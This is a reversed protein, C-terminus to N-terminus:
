ISNEQLKKAQKARAAQNRRMTALRKKATEANRLRRRVEASIEAEIDEATEARRDAAQMGLAWFTAAKLAEILTVIAWLAWSPLSNTEARATEAESKVRLDSIRTRLPAIQAQYASSCAAQYQPGPRTLDCRPTADIKAELAAIEADIQAVRTAEKSAAAEIMPRVRITEAAGMARHGSAANFGVCGVALVFLVLKGRWSPSREAHLFLRAGLVEASIALVVLVASILGPTQAWGWANLTASAAILAWIAVGTLWPTTKTQNTMKIARKIVGVGLAGGFPDPPTQLPLELPTALRTLRPM